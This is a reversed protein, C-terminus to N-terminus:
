NELPWPRRQCSLEEFYLGFSWLEHKGGSLLLCLMRCTEKPEPPSMNWTRSCLLPRHNICLSGSRLPAWLLFPSQLLHLAHQWCGRWRSRTCRLSEPTLSSQPSFSTHPKCCCLGLSRSRAGATQLLSYKSKMICSQCAVPGWYLLLSQAHSM